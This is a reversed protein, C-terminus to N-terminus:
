VSHLPSFINHHAHALPNLTARQDFLARDPIITAIIIIIIITVVVVIIIVGVMTAWWEGTEHRACEVAPCHYRGM